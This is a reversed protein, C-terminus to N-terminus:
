KYCQTYYFPKSARLKKATNILSPDFITAIWLLNASIKPDFYGSFGEIHANARQIDFKVSTKNFEIHKKEGNAYPLLWNIALSLSSGSSSVLNYWDDGKARAALASDLLADLDAIVYKISDREKFDWTSGDIYINQRLQTLYLQRAKDYMDNDDTAVSILTVLRIRNSQWNSKWQSSNDNHSMRQIYGDGWATLYKKIKDNDQNSISKKIISYARILQSFKAEDVPNFTPTYTNVWSLIYKTAINLSKDPIINSAWSIAAIQITDMDKLSIESEKFIENNPMKGEINIHKLPSPNQQDAKKLEMEFLKKISQFHYFNDCGYLDTAASAYPTVLSLACTISLSIIVKEKMKHM